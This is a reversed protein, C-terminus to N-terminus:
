LAGVLANLSCSLNVLDRTSRSSTMSASSAIMLSSFLACQDIQLAPRVRVATPGQGSVWGSLRSSVACRHRRLEFRTKLASCLTQDPGTVIRAEDGGLTARRRM